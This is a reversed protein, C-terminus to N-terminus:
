KLMNPLTNLDVTIQPRESVNVENSVGEVPESLNLSCNM